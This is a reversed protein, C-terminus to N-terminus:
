AWAVRDAADTERAQERFGLVGEPKIREIGRHRAKGICGIRRGDRADQESEAIPYRLLEGLRWMELDFAHTVCRLDAGDQAVRHLSRSSRQRDVALHLGAISPQACLPDDLSQPSCRGSLRWTQKAQGPRETPDLLVAQK